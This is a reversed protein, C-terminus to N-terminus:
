QETVRVMTGDPLLAVLGHGPISNVRPTSAKRAPTYTVGDRTITRVQWTKFGQTVTVVGNAGAAASVGKATSLLGDIGESGPSVSFTFGENGRSELISQPGTAGTTSNSSGAPTTAQIEALAAADVNSIHAFQHKMKGDASVMTMIMVPEASVMVSASDRETASGVVM